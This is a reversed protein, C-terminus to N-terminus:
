ISEICNNHKLNPFVMFYQIFDISGSHIVLPSTLLQIADQLHKLTLADPIEAIDDELGWNSPNEHAISSQRALTNAHRVFPCAM